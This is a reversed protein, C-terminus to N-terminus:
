VFSMLLGVAVVSSLVVQKVKLGGIAGSESPQSPNPTGVPSTTESGGTAPPSSATSGSGTVAPASTSAVDEPPAATVTPMGAKYWLDCQDFCTVAGDDYVTYVFQLNEAFITNDAAEGDWEIVESGVSKEKNGDGGYVALTVKDDDGLGSIDGKKGVAICLPVPHRYIMDSGGAPNTAFMFDETEPARFTLGSISAPCCDFYTVSGPGGYSDPYSGSTVTTYGVPCETYFSRTTTATRAELIATGYETFEPYCDSNARDPEGAKTLVCISSFHRDDTHM